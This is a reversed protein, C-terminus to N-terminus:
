ADLSPRTNVDLAAEAEAGDSLRDEHLIPLMEGLWVAHSLHDSRERGTNPHILIVLGDRNLMLWPLLTSFTPVDFSVQYMPRAHPGVQRDHIHGLAVGFREAIRERLRMAKERQAPGDFYVHAHYSAIRAIPQVATPTM